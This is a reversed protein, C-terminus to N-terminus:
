VFQAHEEALAVAKAMMAAIQWVIGAFLLTLVDTSGIGFALTRTGPPLTYTVVLAGIPTVLIGAVGAAFMAAAFGRLGKVARLTFYEGRAFSQFCRRASLLGLSMFTVPLLALVGAVGLQWTEVPGPNRVALRALLAETPTSMLFYIVAAPLLFALAWLAHALWRNM